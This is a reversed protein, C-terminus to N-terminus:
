KGINQCPSGPRRCYETVLEDYISQLSIFKGQSIRLGALRDAAEAPSDAQVGLAGWGGPPTNTLPFPLWNAPNDM